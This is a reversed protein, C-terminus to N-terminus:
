STAAWAPCGGSTGPLLPHVTSEYPVHIVCYPPHYMQFHGAHPMPKFIVLKM